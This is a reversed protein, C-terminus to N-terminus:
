HLHVPSEAVRCREQGTHVRFMERVEEFKEAVADGALVLSSRGPVEQGHGVGTVVDLNRALHVLDQELDDFGHLM